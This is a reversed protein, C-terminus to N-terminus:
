KMFAHAFAGAELLRSFAATVDFDAALETASAYASEVTAGQLLARTFAGGPGDLKFIQVDRAPRTVLAHENAATISAAAEDDQNALWISVIPHLSAILRTAPHPAFHTHVLEGENLLTSADLPEADAAHLSELRARELRAVDALYAVSAAPEFHDIFDAFGAGYLALSPRRATEQLLFERAMATFFDEGVLRQVVPYADALAGILAGHVNNRHVRFRRAARADLGPPHADGSRDLLAAAFQARYRREASITM